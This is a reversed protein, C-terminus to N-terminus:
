NTSAAAAKRRRRAAIGALGSGLLIMTTPEPTVQNNGEEDLNLRGGLTYYGDTVSNIDAVAAANLTVDLTVNNDAFTYARSGYFTGTGLDAFTGGNNTNSFLQSENGLFDRFNVTVGGSTGETNLRLAASTIVPLDTMHFSFFSRLWETGDPTGTFYNTNGPGNYGNYVPGSSVWGQDTSNLVFAGGNLVLQASQYGSSSYVYQASAPSSLVLTAAATLLFRRM